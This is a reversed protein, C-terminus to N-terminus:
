RVVDVTITQTQVPTTKDGAGQELILRIQHTGTQRALLTVEAILNQGRKANGRWVIKEKADDAFRVADPLAVRWQTDPWDRSPTFSLTVQRATGLQLVQRQVQKEEAKDKDAKDGKLNNEKAGSQAPADSQPAQDQATAANAASRAATKASRTTDFGSFGGGGFGGGGFGGGSGGASAAPPVAQEATAAGLPGRPGPPGGPGPMGRPSSEGRPESAPVGAPSTAPAPMAPRAGSPMPAPAPSMIAPPAPAAPAVPAAGFATGIAPMSPSPRLALNSGSERRIVGTAGTAGTASASRPASTGAVDKKMVLDPLAPAPQAAPTTPANFSEGGGAGARLKVDDRREEAERRPASFRRALIPREREANARDDLGPKPAAPLAPTPRPVSLTPQPELPPAVPLPPAMPVPVARAPSKKATAPAPSMADRPASAIKTVDASLPAGPKRAAPKEAVPKGAAPAAQSSLAGRNGSASPSAPVSMAPAVRETAEHQMAVRGASKEQAKDFESQMQPTRALLVLFCATALVGGAWALRAPRRALSQWFTPREPAIEGRSEARLEALVRARLDPPAAVQPLARMESQAARLLALDRQCQPCNEVHARLDRLEADGSVADGSSLSTEDLLDNLRERCEQCTM